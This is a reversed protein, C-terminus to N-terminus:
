RVHSAPRTHEADQTSTNRPAHGAQAYQMDHYVVVGLEDCADYWADPLFVGGGWVRLTNFRGEVASRVLRRHAQLARKRLKKGDRKAVCVCVCVCM